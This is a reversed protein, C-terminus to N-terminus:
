VVPVVNATTTMAPAAMPRECASPACLSCLMELRLEGVVPEVKGAGMDPCEPDRLGPPTTTPDVAVLWGGIWDALRPPWVVGALVAQLLSVADGGGLLALAGGDLSMRPRGRTEPVGLGVFVQTVGVGVGDLGDGVAVVVGDDVGVGVSM